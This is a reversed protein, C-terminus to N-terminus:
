RYQRYTDYAVLLGIGGIINGLGWHYFLIALEGTFKAASPGSYSGTSTFGFWILILAVVIRGALNLVNNLNEKNDLDLTPIPFKLRQKVPKNDLTLRDGWYEEKSIERTAM